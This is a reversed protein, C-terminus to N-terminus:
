HTPSAPIMNNPDPSTVTPASGGAPPLFSVSADLQNIETLYYTVMEPSVDTVEGGQTWTQHDNLVKTVVQGDPTTVAVVVQGEICTFKVTKGDVAVVFDTGRIGAVGNPTRIDFHSTKSLKKISGVITGTQVVMRTETDSDTATMKELAVSSNPAIRVASDKGNIALDATSDAATQIAAGTKLATGSKLPMWPGNPNAFKVSGHVAKVAATGDTQANVTAPGLVVALALSCAVLSKSLSQTTRMDRELHFNIESYTLFKAIFTLTFLFSKRVPM